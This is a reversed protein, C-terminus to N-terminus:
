SVNLDKNASYLLVVLMFLCTSMLCFLEFVISLLPINEKKNFNHLKKESIMSHVHTKSNPSLHWSEQQKTRYGNDNQAETRDDTVHFRFVGYCKKLSQLMIIIINNISAFYM